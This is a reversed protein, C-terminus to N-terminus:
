ASLLLRAASAGSALADGFAVGDLHAGALALRPFRALRQRLAAVLRPHERGPQPVARPWRTIALVRPAERLGLVRDVEAQLAAAVRDDPWELAQPARGGGALLTLLERGPPARDPFLRSMFLCGLLAEGEGRPVLYGFGRLPVRTSGSSLSLSVSM